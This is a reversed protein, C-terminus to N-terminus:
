YTESLLLSRARRLLRHPNVVERFRMSDGDLLNIMAMTGAYHGAIIELVRRFVAAPDTDYFTSIAVLARQMDPSM